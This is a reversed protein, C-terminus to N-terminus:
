PNSEDERFSLAQDIVLQAMGPDTGLAGTRILLRGGITESSEPTARAAAGMGLADPIDVLSHPGDAVLFPVVVVCRAGVLERWQDLSPHDDLFATAIESFPLDRDRLRRAHEEATATSRRDRRTGHGALILAADNRDGGHDDLAALARTALLSTIDGHLGVPDCLRVARGNRGTVRGELELERPIVRRTFWGEALFFPVLDIEEAEVMPWFTRWSPEEKWFACHVADFKGTAAIRARCSWASVAAEASRTSGHALLVLARRPRSFASTSPHM